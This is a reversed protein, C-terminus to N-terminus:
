LQYLSYRIRQHSGSPTFETEHLLKLGRAKLTENRVMKRPLWDRSEEGSEKWLLHTFGDQKLLRYLDEENRCISAYRRYYGAHREVPRDFYFERLERTLLKAQPPLFRNVYQAMEYGEVRTALFHEPPESGLAVPYFDRKNFLLLGNM